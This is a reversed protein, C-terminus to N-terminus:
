VIELCVVGCVQLEEYHTALGLDSLLVHVHAPHHPTAAAGGEEGSAPDTLEVLINDTKIDRCGHLHHHSTRVYTNTDDATRV